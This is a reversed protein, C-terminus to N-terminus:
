GFDLRRAVRPEVLFRRLFDRFDHIFWNKRIAMKLDKYVSELVTLDATTENAYRQEFLKGIKAGLNRRSEYQASGPKHYYKMSKKQLRDVRRSMFADYRPVENPGYEALIEPEIRRGALHMVRVVEERTMPRRSHPVRHNGAKMMKSLQAADYTQKNLEIARQVPFREWSIHNPDPTLERKKPM